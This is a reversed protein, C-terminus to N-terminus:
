PETSSDLIQGPQYRGDVGAIEILRELPMDALSDLLLNAHDLPLSCTLPNPVAVCFIGARRAALVGNPSDELAIAEAPQVQFQSVITLYLAPDPKGREVHERTRICDFYETLHLRNLHWLVWDGTSSSAIGTKLGLRRASALYDQVGPRVPQQLVLGHERAVRGPELAKRDVAHGLLKELDDYPDFADASAGIIKSWIAMNLGCGHAEFLEQWSKFIPSETDVILGDFDFLLAKIM